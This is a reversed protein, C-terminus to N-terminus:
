LPTTNISQQEGYLAHVQTHYTGYHGSNIVIVSEEGTICQTANYPMTDALLGQESAVHYWAIM